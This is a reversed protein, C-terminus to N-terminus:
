DDKSEENKLINPLFRAPIRDTKIAYFVGGGILSLVILIVIIRMLVTGPKKVGQPEDEEETDMAKEEQKKEQKEEQKEEIEEDKARHRDLINNIKDDVFSDIDNDVVKASTGSLPQEIDTIKIKKSIEPVLRSHKNTTDFKEKYTKDRTFIYDAHATGDSLEQVDSM